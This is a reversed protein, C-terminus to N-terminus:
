VVFFVKCLKLVEAQVASFRHHGGSFLQFVGARVMDSIMKTRQCQLFDTLYIDAPHIKVTQRFVFFLMNLDNQVILIMLRNSYYNDRDLWIKLRMPLITANM